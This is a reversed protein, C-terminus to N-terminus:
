IPLSILILRVLINDTIYLKLVSLRTILNSMELVYEHINGKENYRISVLKSLAASTEVKKNVVCCDVIEKYFTAINKEEFISVRLSKLISLKLMSM